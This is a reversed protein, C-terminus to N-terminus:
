LILRNSLFDYIAQERKSFSGTILKEDINEYKMYLRCLYALSHCSLYLGFEITQYSQNCFDLLGKYTPHSHMSIIPYLFHLDMRNGYLNVWAKDYSLKECVYGEKKERITFVINERLFKNLNGKPNALCEKGLDSSLIEEKLLEIEKKAKEKEKKYQQPGKLLIKKSSILWSNWIIDKEYGKPFEFLYYFMALHEYVSRTLPITKYEDSLQLLYGDRESHIGELTLKHNCKHYITARQLFANAVCQKESLNVNHYKDTIYYIITTAVKTVFDSLEIVVNRKIDDSLSDLFPAGASVLGSIETDEYLPVFFEMRDKDIDRILPEVGEKKMLEELKGKTSNKVM